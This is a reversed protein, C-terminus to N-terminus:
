TCMSATERGVGLLELFVTCIFITLKLSERVVRIGWGCQLGNGRGAATALPLGCLCLCDGEPIWDFVTGRDGM